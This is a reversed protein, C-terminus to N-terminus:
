KKNNKKAKEKLKQELNKKLLRNQEKMSYMNNDARSVVRELLESHSEREAYGYSFLITIDVDSSKLIKVIDEMSSDIMKINLNMAILLFEDGGMRIPVLNYKRSVENLKKAFEILLNDGSEHGLYDNYLKLGDLDFLVLAYSQSSKDIKSKIEEFHNRNYLGTMLDHSKVYNMDNIYKQHESEDYFLYFKGPYKYLPIDILKMLMHLYRRNSDFDMQLDDPETFIVARDQIELLLDEFVINDEINLSFYEIFSQSADIVENRQNVIVYMERLNDLIFENRNMMLILKIDRIYIVFYYMLIIVVFAIFTPDIIFRVFFIHIINLTVGLLIGLFVFLFPFYDQDRKMRRYLNSLLEVCIYVLIFYCIATHIYFFLGVPANITDLYTISNSPAIDWVWLHLANTNVLALEIVFFIGIMWKFIKLIPRGIYRRIAAHLSGVVLFVMPYLNLGLYYQIYPETVLLRLWTQITWIFLLISVFKFYKYRKNSNFVKLITMPFFAAFTVIVLVIWLFVNM